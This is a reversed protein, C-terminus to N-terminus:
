PLSLPTTIDDGHNGVDGTGPVIAAGATQAVIYGPSSIVFSSPNTAGGYVTTLTLNVPTGCVFSPDTSIKYTTTNTATAGPAVAVLM